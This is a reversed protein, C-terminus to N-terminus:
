TRKKNLYLNPVFIKFDYFKSYILLTFFGQFTFSNLFKFIVIFSIFVERLKRLKDGFM